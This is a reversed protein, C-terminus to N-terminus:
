RMVPYFLSRFLVYLLLVRYLEELLGTAAVRHEKCTARAVEERGDGRGDGHGQGALNLPLVPCSTWLSPFSAGKPLAGGSPSAKGQFHVYANFHLTSDPSVGALPSNMKWGTVAQMFRNIKEAALDPDTSLDLSRPLTVPAFPLLGQVFPQKLHLGPATFLGLVTSLLLRAQSDASGPAVLLGQITQLASLVKRGDLRSTCSQDEGPVGLFAQLRHATPDLAGLYFSALTGFLTTPSLVAGGATSQTKSLARYRLFGMFNLLMGVKAARMRDEEDRKEAALLLRERLAKEDVPSTKAEIPVPTFTPDKPTEANSKELQECSSKSYVLLHFPHIYVRDGAALGMWAWLCLVAARLSVAVPSM